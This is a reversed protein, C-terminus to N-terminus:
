DGLYTIDAFTWGAGNASIDRAAGSNQLVQVAVKDNAALKLAAGIHLHNGSALGAQDILRVQVGNVAIYLRRVGTANGVFHAAAEISYRGARPAVFWRNVADYAIGDAVLQADFAISTVAGNAISLATSRGRSALLGPTPPTIDGPGTNAGAAPTGIAVGSSYEMRRLIHTVRWRTASIDHQVGIIRYFQSHVGSATTHNVGVARYLEVSAALLHIPNDPDVTFSVSRVTDVPTSNARLFATAHTLPVGDTVTVTDASPGWAAVSAAAVYPGYTKQGDVEDLNVRDVYLTNVLNETDFGYEIATYGVMYVGPADPNDSAVDSYAWPAVTGATLIDPEVRVTDAADIWAMAHHTDRLIELWELAKKTQGTTIPVVAVPAGSNSTSGAIGTGDLLKTLRQGLNGSYAQTVDINALRSVADLATLTVHVVNKGKIPQSVDGKDIRGTALLTWVGNVKVELTVKKNPRTGPALQPSLTADRVVATLTGPGLTDIVRAPDRDAGRRVTIALSPGTINVGAETRLRIVDLLATTM